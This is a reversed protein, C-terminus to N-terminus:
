ERCWPKPTSVPPLFAHSRENMEDSGNFVFRDGFVSILYDAAKSEDKENIAKEVSKKLKTFSNIIEDVETSNYKELLNDNPAVPMYVTRYLTLSSMIQKLTEYLSEDDREIKLVLNKCVLVTILVGSIKNLSNFDTWAKLYIINRRLQEDADNLKEYFWDKFKKPDNEIWTNSKKHALYTVDDKVGYVPLDIHYDNAYIVRVCSSKFVVTAKTANEVAEAIWSQATEPKLATLFDDDLNQLYVGDDIDYEGDIPNITTKFSFSGQQFFDPSKKDLTEKFYKRIRDRNAERSTILNEKKSKSLRVKECFNLYSANLNSM